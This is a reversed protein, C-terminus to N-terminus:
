ESAKRQTPVNRLRTLEIPEQPDFATTEPLERMEALWTVTGETEPDLSALGGDVTAFAEAFVQVFAWAALYLLAAIGAALFAAHLFTSM